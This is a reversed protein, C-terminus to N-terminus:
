KSGQGKDTGASFFFGVGIYSPSLLFNASIRLSYSLVEHTCLYSSFMLPSSSFLLFLKLEQFTKLATRQKTNDSHVESSKTMSYYRNHLWIYLKFNFFCGHKKKMNDSLVLHLQVVASPQKSCRFVLGFSNMKLYPLSRSM